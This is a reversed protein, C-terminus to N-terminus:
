VCGDVDTDEKFTLLSTGRYVGMGCRLAEIWRGSERIGAAVSSQGHAECVSEPLGEAVLLGRVLMLAGVGRDGSRGRASSGYKM